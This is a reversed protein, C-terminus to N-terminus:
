PQPETVKTGSILAMVGAGGTAYFGGVSVLYVGWDPLTPKSTLAAYVAVGLPLLLIALFMMMGMGRGIAFTQGDEGTLYDHFVRSIAPLKVATETM